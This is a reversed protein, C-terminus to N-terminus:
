NRSTPVFQRAIPDAPDARDILAAIGPTIAVAYRAAV